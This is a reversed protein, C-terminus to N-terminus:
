DAHELTLIVIIILLAHVLLVALIQVIKLAHILIKGPNVLGMVANLSVNGLHLVIIILLAHVKLVAIKRVLIITKMQSALEMVVFLM